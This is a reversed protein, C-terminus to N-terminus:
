PAKLEWIEVLGDVYAVALREGRTSLAIGQVDIRPRIPIRRLITETESDHVVVEEAKTGPSRRINAFREGSASLTFHETAHEEWPTITHRSGSPGVAIPNDPDRLESSLVVLRSQAFGVPTGFGAEYWAESARDCFVIPLRSALVALRESRASFVVRPFYAAQTTYHSPAPIPLTRVLTGDPLSRLELVLASTVLAVTTGDPALAYPAEVLWPLPTRTGVALDVLEVPGDPNLRALARSSFPDLVLGTTPVVREVTGTELSRIELFENRLRSGGGRTVVLGLADSGVFNVLPTDDLGVFHKEALSAHLVRWPRRARWASFGAAIAGGLEVVLLVLFAVLVTRRRRV